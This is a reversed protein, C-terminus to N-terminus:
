FKIQVDFVLDEDLFYDAPPLGLEDQLWQSFNEQWRYYESRRHNVRYDESVLNFKNNVESIKYFRKGVELPFRSKKWCRCSGSHTWEVFVWDKIEIILMSRGSNSGSFEGCAGSSVREAAASGMIFSVDKSLVIWTADIYPLYATWLKKRYKWASHEVVKTIMDFFYIIDERALWRIMIRRAEASVESWRIRMGPWRPDGLYEFFFSRLVNKVEEGSQRDARPIWLSAMMCLVDLFRVKEYRANKDILLAKVTSLVPLLSVKKKNVAERVIELLVRRVFEGSILQGKIGLMNLNQMPDGGQNLLWRATSSPGQLTFLLINSNKWQLIQPRKDSYNIIIKNVERRLMETGAYRPDGSLLYVYPLFKLAVRCRNTITKILANTLEMNRAVPDEKNLYLVWPVQKLERYELKALGREREQQWLAQIKQALKNLDVASPLRPEAEFKKAVFEAAEKVQVPRPFKRPKELIGKIFREFEKLLEGSGTM